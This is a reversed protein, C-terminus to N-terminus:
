KENKDGLLIKMLKFDLETTLKFNEYRGEIVFAKIGYVLELAQIDDYIMYDIKELSSIMMDRKVAQPTQMQWLCSRDLSKSVFGESVEKLANNERVALVAADYKLCAEYLKYLEDLVINPRAADHILVVDSVCERLGNLVSDQRRKGGKCVFVRDSKLHIFDDIEEEKCVLVIRNVDKMGLFLDLSYEYVAKNNIKYKIKNYPFGARLGSGAMLLVCDFM